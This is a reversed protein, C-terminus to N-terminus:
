IVEVMTFYNIYMNLHSNNSNKMSLTLTHLQKKLLNSTSLLFLNNYSNFDLFADLIFYRYWFNITNYATSHYVIAYHDTFHQNM